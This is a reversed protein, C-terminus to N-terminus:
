NEARRKIEMMNQPKELPKFGFQEYLGHADDTGLGWRQLNQLKEHTMIAHMLKKGYGNGQYDKLIFVDMIWAFVAYDTVVRAFGIQKNDIYLGFCLSNEISRQVVEINRGVAWYSEKSLYDHILKIDLKTKDTSVQLM